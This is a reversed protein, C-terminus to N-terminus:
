EFIDKIPGPTMLVLRTLLCPCIVWTINIQQNHQIYTPREIECIKQRTETETKLVNAKGQRNFFDWM